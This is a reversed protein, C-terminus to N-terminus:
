LLASANIKIGSMSVESTANVDSYGINTSGDGSKMDCISRWSGDSTGELVATQGVDPTASGTDSWYKVIAIMYDTSGLTFSIDADPPTPTNSDYSAPTSADVGTFDVSGVEMYNNGDGSITIDYTGVPPDVLTYICTRGNATSHSGQETLPNGDYTVGTVTETNGICVVLFRHRGEDVTHSYTLSSVGGATETYTNKPTVVPPPFASILANVVEPIRRRTHVITNAM